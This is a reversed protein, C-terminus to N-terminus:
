FANIFLFLLFLFFRKKCRRFLSTERVHSKHASLRKRLNVNCKVDQEDITSFGAGM